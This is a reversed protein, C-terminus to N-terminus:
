AGSSVNIRQCSPLKIRKIRRIPAAAARSSGPIKVASVIYWGSATGSVNSVAISSLWDEAGRETKPSLKRISIAKSRILSAPTRTGPAPPPVSPMTLPKINPWAATSAFNILGSSIM